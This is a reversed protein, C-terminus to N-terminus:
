SSSSDALSARLLAEVATFGGEVAAGLATVGAGLGLLRLARRRSLLTGIMEDDNDEDLEQNPALDPATTPNPRHPDNPM